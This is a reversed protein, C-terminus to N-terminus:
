DIMIGLMRVAIVKTYDLIFFKGGTLQIPVVTNALIISLDRRFRSGCLHWSCRLVADGVRISQFFYKKVNRTQKLLSASRLGSEVHFVKM